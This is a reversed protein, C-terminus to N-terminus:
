TKNSAPEVIVQGSFRLDIRKVRIGLRLCQLWVQVLRRFKNSYDGRGVDVVGGGCLVLRPNAIDELNVESLIDSAVPMSKLSELLSLGLVVEPSDLMSGISAKSIQCGTLNPLRSFDSVNGKWVVRGKSDIAILISDTVVMASPSGLELTDASPAFSEFFQLIPRVKSSLADRVSPMIADTREILPNSIGWTLVCSMIVIIIVIPQKVEGIM